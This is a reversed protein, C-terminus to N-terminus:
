NAFSGDMNKWNNGDWMIMKNITTDYYQHVQMNSINNPRNETSGVSPFSDEVIIKERQGGFKGYAHGIQKTNRAILRGKKDGNGVNFAHANQGNGVLEANEILIDEDLNLTVVGNSSHGEGYFNKIIINEPYTTATGAGRHDFRSVYWAQTVGPKARVDVENIILKKCATVFIMASGYANSPDVNTAKLKHVTIDAKEDKKADPYSQVIFSSLCGDIDINGIVHSGIRADFPSAVNKGKISDVKGNYGNVYFVQGHQKGAIDRESEVNQFYFDDVPVNSIFVDSSGAITESYCNNFKTTNYFKLDPTNDDIYIAHYNVDKAEFDYNRYGKVNRVILGFIESTNNHKNGDIKMNHTRVDESDIVTIASKEGPWSCNDPITWEINNLNIDCNKLNQLTIKKELTVKIGYPLTFRKCTSGNIINMIQQAPNESELVSIHIVINADDYKREMENIKSIDITQFPVWGNEKKIYIKNDDAVGRVTNLSDNTPLDAVSQVEERHKIGNEDLWTLFSSESLIELGRDNITKIAMNINNRTDSGHASNILPLKKMIM